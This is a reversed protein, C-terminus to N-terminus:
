RKKGSGHKSVPLPLGEYLPEIIPTLEEPKEEGPGGAGGTAGTYYAEEMVEVPRVQYDNGLCARCYDPDEAIHNMRCKFKM